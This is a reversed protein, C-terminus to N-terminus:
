SLLKKPAQSHSNKLKSLDVDVTTSWDRACEPSSTVLLSIPPLKESETKDISQPIQRAYTCPRFYETILM